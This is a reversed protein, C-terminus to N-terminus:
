WKMVGAPAFTNYVMKELIALVFVCMVCSKRAPIAM